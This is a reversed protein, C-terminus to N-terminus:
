YAFFVFPWAVGSALAQLYYDFRSIVIQTLLLLLVKLLQYVGVMVFIVVSQQVLPFHRIRLRTHFTLYALVTLCFANLGLLENYFVDLMIGVCWASLIGVWQPYYILWYLLVLVVIHPYYLKIALSSLLSLLIFAVCFSCVVLIFPAQKEPQYSM